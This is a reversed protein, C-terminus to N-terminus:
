GRPPRSIPSGPCAEDRAQPAAAACSRRRRRRRRLIRPRRRPGRGPARLRRRPSQPESSGWRSVSFVSDHAAERSSSSDRIGPALRARHRDLMEHSHHHARTRTVWIGQGMTKIRPRAGRVGMAKQAIRVDTKPMRHDMVPLPAGMEPLVVRMKPMRTGVDDVREETKAIPAPKECVRSGTAHVRTRRSAFPVRSPPIPRGTVSM